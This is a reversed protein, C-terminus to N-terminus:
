KANVKTTKGNPTVVIYVGNPLETTTINNADVKVTKVLGGSINYVKAIGNTTSNIFLTGQNTWVKGNDVNTNGTAQRYNVVIQLDSIKINSLYVTFYTGDDSLVYDDVVPPNSVTIWDRYFNFDFDYGDIVAEPTIRFAFTGDTSIWQGDAAETAFTLNSSTSAAYVAIGRAIPPVYSGGGDDGSGANDYTKPIYVYLDGVESPAGAIAFYLKEGNALRAIESVQLGTTPYYPKYQTTPDNDLRYVLQGDTPYNGRLTFYGAYGISPVGNDPILTVPQDYLTIVIDIEGVYTEQADKVNITGHTPEEGLADVDINV